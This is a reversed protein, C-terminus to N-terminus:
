WYVVVAPVGKGDWRSLEVLAAALRFAGYSVGHPPVLKGRDVASVLSSQKKSALLGVFPVERILSGMLGMFPYLMVGEVFREDVDFFVGVSDNADCIRPLLMRIESDGVGQYDHEYSVVDVPQGLLCDSFRSAAVAVISPSALDVLGGRVVRFM